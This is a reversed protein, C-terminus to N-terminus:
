PEPSFCPGYIAEFGVFSRFNLIKESIEVKETYGTSM